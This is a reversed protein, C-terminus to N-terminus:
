AAAHDARIEERIHENVRQEVFQTLTRIASRFARGSSSGHGIFCVGNVGLLPAAGYEEWDVSRRVRKLAPRMLLAGLMALADRKVERRVQGMLLNAASEATKLAVNGTFGDTVIVDCTDKFLDRGEVNGIFNLHPAERLLPLAEQVLTNGKSDEEGISLLGVRPNERGLLYRAYCAGMHAFQVLYLPKVEANAGVDLVVTGSHPHGNPFFAALAPRSVGELRGLGLLATAVVAGTNGASFIADLQGEKHLRTLIGLSTKEGRRASKAAKEGMDVREPAHVIDVIESPLPHRKLAARIESEDGVLTVRFRGPLESLALSVGETVVAPGHDGGMADIGIRPVTAM